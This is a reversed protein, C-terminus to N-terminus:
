KEDFLRRSDATLRFLKMPHDPLPLVSEREYFSRVNDDEADVIVAHQRPRWCARRKGNRPRM